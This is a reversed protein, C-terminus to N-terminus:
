YFIIRNDRTIQILTYSAPSSLMGALGFCSEPRSILTGGGKVHYEQLKVARLRPMSAPYSFDFGYPERGPCIHSTHSDWRAVKLWQFSIRSELFKAGASVVGVIGVGMVLWNVLLGSFLRWAYTSHGPKM